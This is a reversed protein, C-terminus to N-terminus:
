WVFLDPLNQIYKQFGLPLKWFSTEFLFTYTQVFYLTASSKPSVQQRM